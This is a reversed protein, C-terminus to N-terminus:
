GSSSPTQHNHLQTAVLLHRLGRFAGGSESCLRAIRPNLYHTPNRTRNGPGSNRRWCWIAPRLEALLRRPGTERRAEKTGVQLLSLGPGLVQAQCQLCDVSPGRCMGEEQRMTTSRAISRPFAPLRGPGRLRRLARSSYALHLLPAESMTFHSHNGKFPGTQVGSRAYKRRLYPIM